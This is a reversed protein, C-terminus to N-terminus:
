LCGLVRRAGGAGGAQRLPRLVQLLRQGLRQQVADARRRLVPLADVVVVLRPEPRVRRVRALLEARLQAADVEEVAEDEGLDLVGVDELGVEGAPQQVRHLGHLRLRVLRELLREDRRAGNAM